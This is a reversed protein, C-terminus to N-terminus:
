EELRRRVKLTRKRYPSDLELEIELSSAKGSATKLSVELPADPGDREVRTIAIMPGFDNRMQSFFQKRQEPTRAALAERAFHAQAFKEWQGADGSNYAKVLSDMHNRIEPPPGGVIREQGSALLATCSLLLLLLRRFLSRSM